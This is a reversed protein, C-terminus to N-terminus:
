VVPDNGGSVRVDGPPDGGSLRRVRLWCHLQPVPTRRSGILGCGLVILAIGGAIAAGQEATVYQGERFFILFGLVSITSVTGYEVPLAHTTEYRAFVVRLWWVTAVSALVWVATFGIM